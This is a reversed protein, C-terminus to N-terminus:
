LLEVREAPARRFRLGFRVLQVAAALISLALLSRQHDAIVHLLWTLPGSFANGVALLIALRVLQSIASLLLLLPANMATSGALYATLAGPILLVVPVAARDFWGEVRRTWRGTRPFRRDVWALSADGHIVGLRQCVPVAIMRRVLALTVLPVAGVSRSALLVNRARPNLAVLLLPTHVVLVPSATDGVGGAVIGLALVGLLWPTAGRRWSPAEGPTAADAPHGM